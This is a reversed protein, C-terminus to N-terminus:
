LSIYLSDKHLVQYEETEAEIPVLPPLKTFQSISTSSLTTKQERDFSSVMFDKGHRKKINLIDFTPNDNDKNISRAPMIKVIVIMKEGVLTSIEPPTEYRSYQKLIKEAPKGILIAGKDDFLIFELECTGDTATICIRYRTNLCLYLNYYKCLCM